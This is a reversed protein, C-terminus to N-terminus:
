QHVSVVVHDAYNEIEGNDDYIVAKPIVSEIDEAILMPMEVDHWYHDEGIHSDKYKALVPQINYFNKVDNSTLDRLVDKFRRSSSTDIYSKLENSDDLYLINKSSTSSGTTYIWARSSYFKAFVYDDRRFQIGTDFGSSSSDSIVINYGYTEELSDDYQNTLVFGYSQHPILYQLKTSISPTSNGLYEDWYYDGYMSSSSDNPIIHYLINTSSSPPVYDDCFKKATGNYDVYFSEQKSYSISSVSSASYYSGVNSQSLIRVTPASNVTTSTSSFKHFLIYFDNTPIAYTASTSSTKTISVNLKYYTSGSKYYIDVYDGSHVGSANIQVVNKTSSIGNNM